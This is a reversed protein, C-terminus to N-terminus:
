GGYLTSWYTGLATWIADNNGDYISSEIGHRDTEITATFGKNTLYAVEAEAGANISAIDAASTPYQDWYFDEVAMEAAPDDYNWDVSHYGHRDTSTTVAIGHDTLYTALADTTTNEADIEAQAVPYLSWYFDDVADSASQDLYDVDVWHSDGDQVVTDAIGRGVLYAALQDQQANSEAM